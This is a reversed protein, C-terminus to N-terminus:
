RFVPLMRQDSRARQVSGSPLAIVPQVPDLRHFLDFQRLALAM